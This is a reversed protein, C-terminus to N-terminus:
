SDLQINSRGIFLIGDEIEFIKLTIKEKMEMEM